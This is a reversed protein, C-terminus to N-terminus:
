DADPLISQTRTVLCNGSEPLPLRTGLFVVSLSWCCSFVRFRVCPVLRWANGGRNKLWVLTLYTKGLGSVASGDDIVGVVCGDDTMSGGVWGDCITVSGLWGDVTVVGEPCGANIIEGGLWGYVAM